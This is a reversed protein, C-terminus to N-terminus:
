KENSEKEVIGGYFTVETANFSLIPTYNAIWAFRVYRIEDTNLEFEVGEKIIEEKRELHNEPTEVETRDLIKVWGDLTGEKNPTEKTGWMEFIKWGGLSFYGSNLPHYTFRSLKVVQGLDITYLHATTRSPDYKDIYELLPEEDYQDSGAGDLTRFGIPKDIHIEGDYFWEPKWLNHSPEDDLENGGFVPVDHPLKHRSMKEKPIEMEFIPKLTQKVTDSFNGWRDKFLIMFEKEDVNFGRQVIPEPEDKNLSYTGLLTTSDAGTKLDYERVFVFVDLSAASPNEFEIKCGGFDSNIKVSEAAYIVPAKKPTIPVVIPESENGAKDVAYIRVKAEKEELLGVVKLKSQYLSATVISERGNPLTYVAKAGLIDNDKPLKYSIDAGGLTATYQVDTVVGPPETDSYKISFDTEETCSVIATLILLGITIIENFIKKM